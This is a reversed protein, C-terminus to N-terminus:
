EFYKNVLNIWEETGMLKELGDDLDKLLKTNGEKVAIGYSEGTEISLIIKVGKDSEFAEGVPKDLVIADINGNILDLIALTYTDYRSFNEENMSGNLILNTEVWGAGTTGTQSGVSYNQLDIAKNLQISSTDKVLISQDAEFYAGTFDVQEEREDTITMAAVIVDIKGAQLSPILSDFIIDKVEVKYGKDILIHKVLDVDFGVINGDDDYYEFPPFDASTGIIVKNEEEEVCGAISIISIIMIYLLFISINKNFVNKMNEERRM